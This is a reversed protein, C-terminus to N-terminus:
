TRGKLQYFESKTLHLTCDEIVEGNAIVRRVDATGIMRDPRSMLRLAHFFFVITREADRKFKNLTAHSEGM